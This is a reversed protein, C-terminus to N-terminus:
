QKIFKSNSTGKDSNIKILYNGSKLGSVDVNNTNQANPIVLVLQGLTNYINISKLEITEKFDIKLVDKVPNPYLSFYNAFEFDQNALTQITTTATNTVIPFNYDFYIGATNSFSNGNVLTSKTKIKFAIYGDNNADDFPLQINEFIFEVKNGSSINTVFSHSGKIPVISNVDFKTTDIIDKVVINQANATGNNEFRIMYHVYDGVKAQSITAGELCTKDNPDLSNVVTQNFTFTNDNPMEDTAASTITAVYNLVDGGNVAPIETPSNVNLTFTIERTELPQLNTFSWSLNNLTQTTVTPLASVLDLVSDNFSLNVTGSQLTNGKNKYILKYKADFGPRAIGIPLLNIELDNHVGNATICFDQTVPSTQTPFNVSVTNPSVNFYTPNEFIPTIAHTGAQVPISYNGTTNSILSGSNTGDSISYKLNSFQNDLVDCGNNNLDYKQNGQINYFTGGPSFSCYSNVNLNYQGLLTQIQLEDACVYQLQTNNLNVYSELSGNKIYLTNLPNESCWLQQLNNNQSLDLTTLLNNYCALNTIKTNLTLNLSLLNNNNCHLYELQTNLALDLNFFNNYGCILSKLVLNQTLNINSLNNNNIWLSKLETNQSLNISNINNYSCILVSLNPNLTLNIDGINNNNCILETLAQNQQVNLSYLQNYSCNLVRLSTNLSVDISTIQNNEFYFQFLGTFNSIGDISNISSNNINLGGVQQAESVEIEGNLNSDIKFPHAGLNQAVNNSESSSLLKAKFNADPFNIIQANGVGYFFLAVVLFYINKM